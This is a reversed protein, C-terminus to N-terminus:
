QELLVYEGHQGYRQPKKGVKACLANGCRTIAGNQTAQLIDQSFHEQELLKQNQWILFGVGVAALVGGILLAGSAIFVLSRMRVFLQRAAAATQQTVEQMAQSSADVRGIAVSTGKGIIEGAEGRVVELTRQGFQAGGHELRQASHNITAASEAAQQVMERIRGDAWEIVTGLQALLKKADDPTMPEM